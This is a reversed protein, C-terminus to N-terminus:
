SLINAWEKTTRERFVRQGSTRCLRACNSEEKGWPWRWRSPRPGRGTWGARCDPTPAGRCCPRWWRPTTAPSPPTCLPTARASARSTSWSSATRWCRRSRNLYFFPPYVVTGYSRSYFFFIRRLCPCNRVMDTNNDRCAILLPIELFTLKSAIDRTGPGDDDCPVMIEMEPKGNKGAEAPPINLLDLWDRRRSDAAALLIERTVEANQQTFIFFSFHFSFVSVHLFLARQERRHGASLRHEEQRHLHLGGEAGARDRAPLPPLPPQEQHRLHQPVRVAYRGAAHRLRAVRDGQPAKPDPLRRPRARQFPFTHSIPVSGINGRVYRLVLEAELSATGSIAELMHPLCEAVTNSSGGSKKVAMLWPYDEKTDDEPSINAGHRLLVRVAEAHDHEAAVHLPSRGNKDMANANAGKDLMAGMLRSFNKLACAHLVSQKVKDRTSIAKSINEDMRMLTWAAEEEGSKVARFLPTRGSENKLWGSAGHRFLVPIVRLAQHTAAIHLPTNLSKDKADVAAGGELLAEAAEASDKMAAVFLPTFENVDRVDPETGAEMLIRAVLANNARAAAHLPVQGREKEGLSADAGQELLFEVNEVVNAEASLYLPTRGRAGRADVSAGKGLLEALVELANRTPAAQHVAQRGRGDEASVDFSGTATLAELSEICNAETVLHVPTKGGGDARPTLDRELDLRSLVAAVAEPEGRRAAHHLLSGGDDDRRRCVSLADQAGAGDLLRLFQGGDRAELASVLSEFLIDSADTM